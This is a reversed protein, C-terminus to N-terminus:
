DAYFSGADLNAQLCIYIDRERESHKIQVHNFLTKFMVSIM